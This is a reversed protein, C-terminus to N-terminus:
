FTMRFAVNAQYNKRDLDSSFSFEWDGSLIVPNGSKDTLFPLEATILAQIGAQIKSDEFHHTDGMIKLDLRLNEVAFEGDPSKYIYGGLLSAGFNFEYNADTDFGLALKVPGKTLDVRGALNGETSGRILYQIPGLDQYDFKRSAEFYLDKNDNIPGGEIKWPSPTPTPTPIPIPTPSPTPMPFGSGAMGPAPAVISKVLPFMSGLAFGGVLTATKIMKRRSVRLADASQVVPSIPQSLYEQILYFRQLEELTLWVLGRWDVDEDASVELDEELLKAIDEVTNQGDCYHWVRAAMANLCHATDREQDYVIVEEGVQSILLNKTRALPIM